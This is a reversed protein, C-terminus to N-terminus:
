AGKSTGVVVNFLLVKFVLNKVQKKTGSQFLYHLIQGSLVSEPKTDDVFPFICFRLPLTIQGALHFGQLPHRAGSQFPLGIGRKVAAPLCTMSGM